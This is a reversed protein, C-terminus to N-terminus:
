ARASCADQMTCTMQLWWSVAARISYGVGALKERGPYQHQTSHWLITRAMSPSCATRCIQWPTDLMTSRELVCDVIGTLMEVAHSAYGMM